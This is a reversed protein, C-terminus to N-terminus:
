VVFVFGKFTILLVLNVLVRICVEELCLATQFMGSDCGM